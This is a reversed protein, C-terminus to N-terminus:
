LEASDGGYHNAEHQDMVDAWEREVQDQWQEHRADDLDGQQEAAYAANWDAREQEDSAREAAREEYWQGPTQGHADAQEQHWTTQEPTYITPESM